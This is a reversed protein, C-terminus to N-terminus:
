TVSTDNVASYIAFSRISLTMLHHCATYVAACYVYAGGGAGSAGGAAALGPVKVLELILNSFGSFYSPM